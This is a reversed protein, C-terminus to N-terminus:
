RDLSFFKVILIEIELTLLSLIGITILFLDPRVFTIGFGFIHVLIFSIFLLSAIADELVTGIHLFRAIKLGIHLGGKETLEQVFTYSNYLSIRYALLLSLPFSILYLIKEDSIRFSEYFGICVFETILFYFVLSLLAKKIKQETSDNASFLSNKFIILSLFTSFIALPMEIIAYFPVLAPYRDKNFIIFAFITPIMLTIIFLKLGIDRYSHSSPIRSKTINKPHTKPTDDSKTNLIKDIERIGMEM